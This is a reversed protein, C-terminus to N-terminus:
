QVYVPQLNCTVKSCQTSDGSEAPFLAHLAESLASSTAKNMRSHDSNASIENHLVFFFVFFFFIPAWNEVKRNPWEILKDIEPFFVDLIKKDLVWISVGTGRAFAATRRLDELGRLTIARNNSVPEIEEHFM